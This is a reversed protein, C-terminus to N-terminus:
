FRENMRRIVRHNAAEILAVNATDPQEFEELLGRRRANNRQYAGCLHFGICGPNEFLGELVDAYWKGDNSVFDDPSAPRRVGAADALLVPKGTRTHWEDLHALPNRFDQFSLVDVFPKTADIVETATPANAEYRDGLILHHPDYRCIADHTTRYYQAALDALEKRGSETDLREPDFIPGRWRNHPRDHIWTPCDSHFYSCTTYRSRTPFM